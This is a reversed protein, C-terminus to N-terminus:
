RMKKFHVINSPNRPRTIKQEQSPTINKIIPTGPNSPKPRGVINPSVKKDEKAM